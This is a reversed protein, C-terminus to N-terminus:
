GAIAKLHEDAATRLGVAWHPKDHELTVSRETAEDVCADALGYLGVSWARRARELWWADDHEGSARLAEIDWDAVTGDLFDAGDAIAVLVEVRKRAAPSLTPRDFSRARAPSLRGFAAELWALQLTAPWLDPSSALAARYGAEADAIRGERWAANADDLNM